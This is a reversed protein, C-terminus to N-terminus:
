QAHGTGETLYFGRDVARNWAADWIEITPEELQLADRGLALVDEMAHQMAVNADCFDHSACASPRYEDTANRRVVEAMDAPGLWELLVASFRRAVREVTEDSATM